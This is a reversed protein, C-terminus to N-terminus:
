SKGAGLIRRVSEQVNGDGLSRKYQIIAVTILDMVSKQFLIIMNQMIMNSFLQLPWILNPQVCMRIQLFIFIQYLPWYLIKVFLCSPAGSGRQVPWKNASVIIWRQGRVTTVESPLMGGNNANRMYVAGGDSRMRLLRLRVLDFNITWWKCYNIRLVQSVWSAFMMLFHLSFYYKVFFNSSLMMSSCVVCLIMM